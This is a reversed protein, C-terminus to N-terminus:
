YIYALLLPKKLQNNVGTGRGIARPLVDYSQDYCPKALSVCRCRLMRFSVTRRIPVIVVFVLQHAITNLAGQVGRTNGTWSASKSPYVRGVTCNVLGFSPDSSSGIGYPGYRVTVFWLTLLLVSRLKVMYYPYFTDAIM